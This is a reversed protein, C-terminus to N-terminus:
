KSVEALMKRIIARNPKGGASLPIEDTFIIKVPIKYKAIRNRLYAQISEESWTVGSELKVMAAPVEGYLEDPIGVVIAESIGDIQYMQEEVDFSTMKEGGRNIMDKKRDVVYCHGDPTFYGVDGTHLCGNQYDPTDLKYYGAMICAGSVLIEGTEGPLVEEGNEGIVKFSLGPVPFGNSVIETSELANEKQITAPSTTETMGYVNHYECAPLWEYLKKIKDGPMRSGGCVIRRLSPLNLFSHRKELLISCVTPAAHMYTVQHDRICALIQEAHFIRQLYITGGVYLFTGIVASLATITYIPVPIVTIDQDTIDFAMQYVGAAHVFNYNTLLVGKSLATTGSTFMMVSVNEYEDRPPIDPTGAPIRYPSLSYVDEEPTYSIVPVGSQKYKDFWLEYRQDCIICDLDARDSLSHIEEEKFKTPLIVAVAGLKIVSLFIVIYEVTGYAMVAIHANPKIKLSYGLYGAFQDVKEKLQRYTLKRGLDDSLAMHEPHKEATNGLFGYLSRPMDAFTEIVQGNSLTKPVFDNQIKDQWYDTGIYM